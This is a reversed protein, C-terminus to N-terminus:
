TYWCPVHLLLTCPCQIRQSQVAKIEIYERKEEAPRKVGAVRKAAPIMNYALRYVAIRVPDAQIGLLAVQREHELLAIPLYDGDVSHAICDGYIRAFRTFKIDNEGM